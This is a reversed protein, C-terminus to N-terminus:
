PPISQHPQKKNQLPCWQRSKTNSKKYTLSHRNLANLKFFLFIINLSFILSRIALLSVNDFVIKSNILSPFTILGSIAPLPILSRSSIITKTSLSALLVTLEFNGRIKHILFTKPNLIYCNNCGM